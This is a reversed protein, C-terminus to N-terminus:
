YGGSMRGFILHKDTADFAGQSGKGFGNAAASLVVRVVLPCRLGGVTYRRDRAKARHVSDIRIRM